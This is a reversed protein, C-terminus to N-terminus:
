EIVGANHLDLITQRAQVLNTKRITDYFVECLNISHAYCVADPDNLLADVVGPEPSV